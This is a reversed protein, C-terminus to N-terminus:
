SCTFPRDSGLVAPHACPKQSIWPKKWIRYRGGYMDSDWAMRTGRGTQDVALGAVVQSDFGFVQFAVTFPRGERLAVDACTVAATKPSGLMVVGCDTARPGATTGLKGRFERLSPGSNCGSLAFTVTIVTALVGSRRKGAGLTGFSLRPSPSAPSTPQLAINPSRRM